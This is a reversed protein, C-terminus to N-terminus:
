EKPSLAAALAIGIGFTAVYSQWNSVGTQMFYFLSPPLFMLVIWIGLVLFFKRWNLDPPQKKDPIDNLNFASQQGSSSNDLIDLIEQRRHENIPM